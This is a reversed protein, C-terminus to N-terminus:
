DHISMILGVVGGLRFQTTQGIGPESAAVVPIERSKKEQLYQSTESGETRRRFGIYEALPYTFMFKRPNGWESIGPDYSIQSRASAYRLRDRGEDGGLALADM